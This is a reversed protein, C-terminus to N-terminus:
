RQRQSILPLSPLRDLTVSCGPAGPNWRLDMPKQLESIHVQTAMASPPALNTLSPQSFCLLLVYQHLFCSRCNFYRSEIRHLQLLSNLVYSFLEFIRAESKEDRLRLYYCCGCALM